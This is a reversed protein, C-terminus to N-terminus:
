LWIRANHAIPVIGPLLREAARLGHESLVKTLSREIDVRAGFVRLVDAAVRLAARYAPSADIPPIVVARVMGVRLTKVKEILLARALWDRGTMQRLDLVWILRPAAPFRAILHEFVPGVLWEALDATGRVPRTLQAVVGPPETVWAVVAGSPHRLHPPVLFASAADISTSRSKQV